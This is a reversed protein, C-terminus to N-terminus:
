NEKSEEDHEHGNEDFDDGEKDDRDNFGEEDEDDDMLLNPILLLLQSFLLQLRIIMIVGKTRKPNRMMNMDMRMLIM